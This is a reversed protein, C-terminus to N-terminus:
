QSPMDHYELLSFLFLVHYAHFVACVIPLLRFHQFGQGMRDPQLDDVSQQLHATPIDATHFQLGAHTLGTDGLM